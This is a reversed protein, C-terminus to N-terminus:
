EEFLIQMVKLILEVKKNGPTKIDFAAYMRRLSSSVGELSLSVENAIEKNSISPNEFLLKLIMWSSEGIKSNIAKEIKAKDLAMAKSKEFSTLSLSALREKLSEIEHLSKKRAAANRKHSIWLFVGFAFVLFFIIGIFAFRERQIRLKNEHLIKEAKKSGFKVDDFYYICEGAAIGDTGFNFFLSAKNYVWGKELGERLSVTGLAQKSFDFELVEWNRSLTTRNEAECSHTPDNSDEVKLRIITGANPSWVRITMKADAITLPINTKFGKSTGIITGAWTTADEKKVVRVVKNSADEPDTVLSSLNGGFDITTYNVANGEFDVPLDIQTRGFIQEIDDFLFISAATSDGINGFDFMFVLSNFNAPQGTFDWILTEWENSTTTPVDRSTEGLGELKLKIITGVPAHTFVKMSIIGRVSFDLNEDLTLKSGAWPEGGNRIIRAVTASSNIGGPEPNSIITSIAGAFDVFDRKFMTTEFDIPLTQSYGISATFLFILVTVIRM